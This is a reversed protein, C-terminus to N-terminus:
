CCPAPKRGAAGGADPAGGRVDIIKLFLPEKM